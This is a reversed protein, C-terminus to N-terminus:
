YLAPVASVWNKQPLRGEVAGHQQACKYECVV